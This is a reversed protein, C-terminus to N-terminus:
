STSDRNYRERMQSWALAIASGMYFSTVLSVSKKLPVVLTAAAGVGSAVILGPVRTGRGSSSAQKTLCWVYGPVGTSGFFFLLTRATEACVSLNFFSRM